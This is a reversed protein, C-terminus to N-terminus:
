LGPHVMERRAPDLDAARRNAEAMKRRKDNGRWKDRFIRQTEIPQAKFKGYARLRYELVKEPHAKRWRRAALSRCDKCTGRRRDRHGKDSRLEFRDLPLHRYCKTCRYTRVTDAM